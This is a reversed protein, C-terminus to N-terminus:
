RYAVAARWRHRQWVKGATAAPEDRRARNALVLRQSCPKANEDQGRGPIKLPDVDLSADLLV